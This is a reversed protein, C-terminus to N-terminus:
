DCLPFGRCVPARTGTRNAGDAKLRRGQPVLFGQKCRNVFKALICRQRLHVIRFAFM